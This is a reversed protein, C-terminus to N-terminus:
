QYIEKLIKRDLIHSHERVFQMLIQGVALFLQLEGPMDYWNVFYEFATHHHNEKWEEIKEERTKRRKM